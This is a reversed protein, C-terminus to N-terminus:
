AAYRLAGHRPLLMPRQIVAVSLQLKDTRYLYLVLGQSKNICDNENRHVLLPTSGCCYRLQGGIRHKM